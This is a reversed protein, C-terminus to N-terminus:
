CRGSWDSGTAGNGASDADADGDEHGLAGTRWRAGVGDTSGAVDGLADAAELPGLRGGCADLTAAGILALSDAMGGVFGFDFGDAGFFATM